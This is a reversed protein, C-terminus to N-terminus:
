KRKHAKDWCKKCVEFEGPEDMIALEKFFKHCIECEQNNFFQSSFDYFNEYEQTKNMTKNGKTKITLNKGSFM